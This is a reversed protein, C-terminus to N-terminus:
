FRYSLGLSVALMTQFDLTVERGEGSFRFRDNFQFDGGLFAGVHRSFDYRLRLQTYFGPNWDRGGVTKQTPAVDPIADSAFATSETYRLQTDAYLASYGLSLSATLRHTVPYDLWVGLKFAHLDSNLDGDFTAVSASELSGAVAPELDILPGPGNFTGAYPAVPPIIGGLNYGAVTLTALSSASSREQVSFRNYGYGAELGLHAERRGVSFRLIETGGLLEGGPSTASEDDLLGAMPAGRLRQFRLQDGVVQENRQYGWNWTKGSGTHSIDPLVFGDDYSGSQTVEAPRSVTAKVNFLARASARVFWRSQDFLLFDEEALQGSAATLGAALAGLSLPM